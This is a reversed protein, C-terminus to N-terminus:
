LDGPGDPAPPASERADPTGEESSGQSSPPSSDPRDSRESGNHWWFVVKLRHGLMKLIRMAPAQAPQNEWTDRVRRLDDVHLYIRTGHRHVYLDGREILRKVVYDRVDLFLAAERTTLLFPNRPHPM